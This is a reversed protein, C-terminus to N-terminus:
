EKFADVITLIREKVEERLESGNWILPNLEEHVEFAEKLM